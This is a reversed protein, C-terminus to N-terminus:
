GNLRSRLKRIVAKHIQSVRSESINLISTIEKLSLEEFYYLQIILQEKEDMKSLEQKIIDILEEEEVKKSIDNFVRLQEDIPMVHYIEGAIRAKQIKKVPLNLKKALYEDSPEMQNEQYYKDIEKEIDKIIKRDGRSVIDLNRLYDFIAGEIRFKAYGWFNDNQKKDYRRSVKILEETAIAIMDNIDVNSPLRAKIKYALKKVAPLYKLALEDQYSRLNTEYPNNM